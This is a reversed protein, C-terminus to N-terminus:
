PRQRAPRIVPAVYPRPSQTHLAVGRVCPGGSHWHGRTKAARWWGPALAAVPGPPVRSATCPALRQPASSRRSSTAWPSRPYVHVWGHDSPVVPTVRAGRASQSCSAASTGSGRTWRTRAPPQKAGCLLSCPAIVGVGRWCPPSPCAALGAVGGQLQALSSRGTNARAIAGQGKHRRPASRM